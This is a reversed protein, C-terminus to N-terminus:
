IDLRSDRKKFTRVTEQSLKRLIWLLKRHNYPHHGPCLLEKNQSSLPPIEKVTLLNSLVRRINILRETGLYRAATLCNISNCQIKRKRKDRSINLDLVLKRERESWNRRMGYLNLCCQEKWRHLYRLWERKSAKPNCPSGPASSM